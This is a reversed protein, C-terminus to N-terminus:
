LSDYKRLYKEISKKENKISEEFQASLNQYNIDSIIKSFEIEIEAFNKTILSDITNDFIMKADILSIIFGGIHEEPSKDIILHTKFIDKIKSFNKSFYEYDTSNFLILIDGQYDISSKISKLLNIIFEIYNNYRQNIIEGIGKQLYSKLDKIMDNKLKLIQDKSEILSNALSKNLIENYKSFFDDRIRQSSKFIREEYEKRIEAKQFLTKRQINKIEQQANEIMYLGLKGTNRKLEKEEIM